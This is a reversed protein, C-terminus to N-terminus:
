YSKKPYCLIFKRTVDSFAVSHLIDSAEIIEEMHEDNHLIKIPSDNKTYAKNSVSDHVVFYGVEDNNLSLQKRVRDQQEKIKNEGFPTSSMEVKFLNRALLMKCLTSLIADKHTAWVSVASDIDGDCLRTFNQLPCQEQNELCIFNHLSVTNTLFFSLPPSAFLRDGNRILFKARQLIRILLQEASVVTKHLYVQWYMLHRSILFKEVSYIGKAEVVLEDDRVNLMKIIRELGIMGEAVGSFFSDRCLYDLRDVDLQSTVLQHLFQKHYSGTFIEIAKSLRGNLQRNLEEMILLSLAEHDIGDVISHELTHSFPGHGIDHLLIACQAAEKEEDTIIHGKSQLVEIAQTMLHMAGLAHQFRNHCAGPYVLYTLGAQKINRLRQLYPHAILEYVLNAPINIFGHVPDNIIKQKRSYSTM